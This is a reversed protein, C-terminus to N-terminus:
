PSSFLSSILRPAALSAYAYIQSNQTSLTRWSRWSKGALPCCIAHAQVNTWPMVILYVPAQGRLKFLEKLCQALNSDSPSEAGHSHTSYFNSLIDHYSNSQDCLQFLVSSLLGRRYKKEDDRFDCYYFALSAIGCQRM